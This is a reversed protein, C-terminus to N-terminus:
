LRGRILRHLGPEPLDLDHLFERRSDEDLEAIETEIGASIALLHAGDAGARRALQALWKNSSVGTEEVNAIYLVPKETM